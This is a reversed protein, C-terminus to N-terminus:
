NNKTSQGIRLTAQSCYQSTWDGDGIKHELGVTLWGDAWPARDLRVLSSLSTIIERLFTININIDTLTM